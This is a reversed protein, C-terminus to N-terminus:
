VLTIFKKLTNVYCHKFYIISAHPIIRIFISNEFASRFVGYGIDKM